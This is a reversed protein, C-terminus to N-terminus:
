GQMGTALGRRKDFYNSIAVLLSVYIHSFGYGGMVGFTIMLTPVNTSLSSLGIGLASIICGLICVKRCGFKNILHAAIPSSFMKCGVM